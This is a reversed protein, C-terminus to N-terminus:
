RLAPTSTDKLATATAGLRREIAQSSAANGNRGAWSRAARASSARLDRHAVGDDEDRGPVLLLVEGRDEVPQVLPQGVRGDDGDDVSLVASTARACPASTSERPVFWPRRM